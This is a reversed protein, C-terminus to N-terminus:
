VTVKGHRGVVLVGRNREPDGHCQDRHQHRRASAETRRAPNCAPASSADAGHIEAVLRNKTQREM